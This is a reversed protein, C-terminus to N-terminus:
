FLMGCAKGSHMMCHTVSVPLKACFSRSEMGLTPVVFEDCAKKTTENTWFMGQCHAAARKKPDTAFHVPFHPFESDDLCHALEEGTEFDERTNKSQSGRTGEEATYPIGKSSVKPMKGALRRLYAQIPHHRSKRGKDGKKETNAIPAGAGGPNTIPFFNELCPQAKNSSM